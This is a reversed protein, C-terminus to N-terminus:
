YTTLRIYLGKADRSFQAGNLLHLVYLSKM